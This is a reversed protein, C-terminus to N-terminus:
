HGNSGNPAPAAAVIMLADLLKFQGSPGYVVITRADRLEEPPLAMFKGSTVRVTSGDALSLEYPGPHRSLLGRIAELEM